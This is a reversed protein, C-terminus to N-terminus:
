RPKRPRPSAAAPERLMRMPQRFRAKTLRSEEDPYRGTLIFVFTQRDLDPFALSNSRQRNYQYRAGLDFATTVRFTLAADGSFSDIEVEAGAFPPILTEGREYGASLALVLRPTGLPVAGSLRVSDTALVEGILPNLTAGRSYNLGLSWGEDRWGLGAQGIPMIAFKSADRALTAYLGGGALDASWSDSFDHGWRLMSSGQYQTSDDVQGPRGLWNASVQAVVGFRDFTWDRELGFNLSGQFSSTGGPDQIPAFVGVGFGQTLRWIDTLEHSVGEQVTLNLFKNAGLLVAGTIAGGVPADITSTNSQMVSVGVNILSETRPSISIGAVYTAQHSTSDSSGTETFLSVTFVYTARQAIRPSDFTLEFGPVFTFFASERVGLVTGDVAQILRANDTYGASTSYTAQWEMDAHVPGAGLGVLAVATVLTAPGWPGRASCMMADM